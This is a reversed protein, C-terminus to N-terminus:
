QSALRQWPMAAEFKEALDLLFEEQYASAVLQLGTPLDGVPKSPVVVAPLAALNFVTSFIAATRPGAALGDVTTPGSAHRPWPLV